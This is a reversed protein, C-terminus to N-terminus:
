RERRLFDGIDFVNEVFVGKHYAVRGFGICQNTESVVLVQDGREFKGKERSTLLDRGCVFLWEQKRNVRVKRQTHKFIINLLNISPFFNRGREKGLYLGAYFPNLKEKKINIKDLLHIMNKDVVFYKNEVKLLTLDVLIDKGTFRKIFLRLGNM